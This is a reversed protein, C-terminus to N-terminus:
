ACSWSCWQRNEVWWSAYFWSSLDPQEWLAGQRRALKQQEDQMQVVLTDYSLEHAQKGLPEQLQLCELQQGWWLQLCQDGHCHILHHLGEESRAYHPIM